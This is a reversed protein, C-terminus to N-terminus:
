QVDHIESNEDEDKAILDASYNGSKKATFAVGVFAIDKATSTLKMDKDFFKADSTGGVADGKFKWGRYGIVM